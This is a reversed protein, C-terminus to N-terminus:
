SNESPLLAGALFNVDALNHDPIHQEELGTIQDWSVADQNFFHVHKDVLRRNEGVFIV